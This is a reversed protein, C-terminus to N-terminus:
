QPRLFSLFHCFGCIFDLQDIPTQNLITYALTNTVFCDLNFNNLLPLPSLPSTSSLDLFLSFSVFGASSFGVPWNSNSWFHHLSSHKDCIMLILTIWFHFLRSLPPTSSTKSFIYFSLVQLTFLVPWISNWRYHDSIYPKAWDNLNFLNLTPFPPLYCISSFGM